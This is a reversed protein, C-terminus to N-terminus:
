LKWFQPTERKDEIEIDFEEEADVDAVMLPAPVMVALKEDETIGSNEGKVISKTRMADVVKKNANSFLFFLLWGVLVFRRTM